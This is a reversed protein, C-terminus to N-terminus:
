VRGLSPSPGAPPPTKLGGNGDGYTADLLLRQDVAHFVHHKRDLHGGLLYAKVRMMMPDTDTNRYFKPNLDYVVATNIRLQQM